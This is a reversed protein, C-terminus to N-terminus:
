VQERIICLYFSLEGKHVLVIYSVGAINFADIQIFGRVFPQSSSEPQKLFFLFISGLWYYDVLLVTIM